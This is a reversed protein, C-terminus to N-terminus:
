SYSFVRLKSGKLEDKTKTGLEIVLNRNYWM